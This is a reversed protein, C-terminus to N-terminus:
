VLTQLVVVKCLAIDLAVHFYHEITKMQITRRESTENKIIFFASEIINNIRLKVEFVGIMHYLFMKSKDQRNWHRTNPNQNQTARHKKSKTRQEQEHATSPARVRLRNFIALIRAVVVFRRPLLLAFMKGASLLVRVNLKPSFNCTLSRGSM